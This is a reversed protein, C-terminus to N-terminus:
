SQDDHAFVLTQTGYSDPPSQGTLTYGRGRAGLVVADFRLRGHGVMFTVDRRGDFAEDLIQPARAQADRENRGVARVMWIMAAIFLAVGIMGGILVIEM